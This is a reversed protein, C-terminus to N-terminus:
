VGGPLAPLLRSHCAMPPSPSSLVRWLRKRREMMGGDGPRQDSRYVHSLLLRQRGPDPYLYLTLTLPTGAESSSLNRQLSGPFTPPPSLLSRPLLIFVGLAKAQRTSLQGPGCGWHGPEELFSRVTLLPTLLDEGSQWRRHIKTGNGSAM